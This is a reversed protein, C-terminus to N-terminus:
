LSGLFLSFVLSLYIDERQPTKLAVGNQSDLPFQLDPLLPRCTLNQLKIEAICSILHVHTYIYM